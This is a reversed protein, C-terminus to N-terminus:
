ALDELLYMQEREVREERLGAPKDVREKTVRTRSEDGVVKELQIRIVTGTVDKHPAYSM